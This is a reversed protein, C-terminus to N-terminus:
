QSEKEASEVLQSFNKEITEEIPSRPIDKLLEEVLKEVKGVKEPDVAAPSRRIANMRLGIRFWNWCLRLTPNYLKVCATEDCGADTIGVHTTYNLHIFRGPSVYGAVVWYCGPPVEVQLHGCKFPLNAYRGGPVPQWSGDTALFRGCPWELIGKCDFITVRGAGPWIGCADAVDSVWINLKAMGM